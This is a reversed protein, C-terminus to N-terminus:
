IKIKFYLIVHSVSLLSVLQRVWINQATESFCLLAEKTQTDGTLTRTELSHWLYNMACNDHWGRWDMHGRGQAWSLQSKRTVWLVTM